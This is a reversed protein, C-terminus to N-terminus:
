GAQPPEDTPAMPDCPAAAPRGRPPPPCARSSAAVPRRALLRGCAGADCSHEIAVVAGDQIMAVCPGGRIGFWDALPAPAALDVVSRACGAPWPAGAFRERVRTGAETAGDVFLVACLGRHGGPLLRSPDLWDTGREGPATHLEPSV